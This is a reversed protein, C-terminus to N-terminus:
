TRRQTRQQCYKQWHSWLVPLIMEQKAAYIIDIRFSTIKKDKRKIRVAYLADQIALDKRFYPVTLDMFIVFEKIEKDCNERDGCLEKSNSDYVCHVLSTSDTKLASLASSATFDTESLIQKWEAKEEDTMERMRGDAVTISEPNDLDVDGQLGRIIAPTDTGERVGFIERIGDSAGDADAYKQVCELKMM